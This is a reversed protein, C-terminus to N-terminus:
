QPARGEKLLSPEFMPSELVKLVLHGKSPSITWPGYVETPNCYSIIHYIALNEHKMQDKLYNVIKQGALMSGAFLGERNTAETKCGKEPEASTQRLTPPATTYDM